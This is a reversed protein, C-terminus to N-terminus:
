PFVGRCNAACGSLLLRSQVQCRAGHVKLDSQKDGDLNMTRLAVRGIVPAKYISTTVNMGNWTIQRPLGRNVSILKM